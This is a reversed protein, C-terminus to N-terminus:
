NMISLQDFYSQLIVMAAVADRETKFETHGTLADAAKSSLREDIIELPINVEKKLKELFDNFGENTIRLEYNTMSLPKGVVIAEIDEDKIVQLVEELKNAVKFPTAIKTESDGLALGIRKEGWDIGLYLM